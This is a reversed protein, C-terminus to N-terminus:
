SSAEDFDLRLPSTWVYRVGNAGRSPPLIVYGGAGRYDVGPYIGAGNGRGTPRIFLHHGAERSTLSHGIEDPLTVGAGYTSRIGDRGDIDIVDFRIGTPAGINADPVLSWWQRIKDVDTSADKLGHPAIWPGADGVRAIPQKGRPECPFVAVGQRAYWVATKALAEPADLRDNAQARQAELEDGLRAILGFNDSVVARRYAEALEDVRTM